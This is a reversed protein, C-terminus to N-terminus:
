RQKGTSLRVRDDKFILAPFLDHPGEPETRSAGPRTKRIELFRVWRATPGDPPM